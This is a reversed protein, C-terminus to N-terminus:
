GPDTCRAGVTEISHYPAFRSPGGGISRNQHYTKMRYLTQTHYSSLSSHISGSYGSRHSMYPTNGTTTQLTPRTLNCNQVTLFHLIAHRGWSGAQLILSQRQDIRTIALDEMISEAIPKM